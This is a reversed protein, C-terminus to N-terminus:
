TGDAASVILFGRIRGGGSGSRRDEAAALSVGVRVGVPSIGSGEGRGLFWDVVTRDSVGSIGWGYPEARGLVGLRVTAGAEFVGVTRNLSAWFRWGYQEFEGFGCGLSLCLFSGCWEVGV